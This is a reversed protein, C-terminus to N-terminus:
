FFSSLYILIGLYILIFQYVRFFLNFFIVRQPYFSTVDSPVHSSFAHSNKVPEFLVAREHFVLVASPAIPMDSNFM